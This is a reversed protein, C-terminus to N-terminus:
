KRKTTKNEGPLLWILIDDIFIGILVIVVNFIIAIVLVSEQIEVIRDAMKGTDPAPLVSFIAAAGIACVVGFPVLLFWRSNKRKIALVVAIMFSFGASFITISLLTQQPHNVLDPFLWKVLLMAASIVMMVLLIIRGGSVEQANQQQSLYAKKLAQRREREYKSSTSM